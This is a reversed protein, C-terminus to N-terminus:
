VTLCIKLKINIPLIILYLFVDILQKIMMEQTMTSEPIFKKLHILVSQKILCKKLRATNLLMTANYNDVGENCFESNKNCDFVCELAGGNELIAKYCM